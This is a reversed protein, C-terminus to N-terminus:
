TGRLVRLEFTRKYSVLTVLTLRYRTSEHEFVVTWGVDPNLIKEPEKQGPLILNIFSDQKEFHKGKEGWGISM